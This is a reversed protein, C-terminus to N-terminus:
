GILYSKYFGYFDFPEVPGGGELVATIWPRGPIFVKEIRDNGYPMIYGGYHILPAYPSSYNIDIKGEPDVTINLSDRLEGTNIIDRAGGDWGWSAELSENLAETLPGVLNENARRIRANVENEIKEISEVSESLLQQKNLDISAELTPVPLELVSVIKEQNLKQIKKDVFAKLQQSISKSM